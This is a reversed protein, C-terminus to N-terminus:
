TRNALLESQPTLLAAADASTLEGTVQELRALTV